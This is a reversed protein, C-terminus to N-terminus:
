KGRFVQLQGEIDDVDNIYYTANGFQASIEDIQTVLGKVYVKTELGEGAAIIAFKM